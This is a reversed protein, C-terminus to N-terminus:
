VDIESSLEYLYLDIIGFLDIRMELFMFVCILSSMESANIIAGNSTAGM